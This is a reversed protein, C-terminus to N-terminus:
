RFKGWGFHFFLWFTLLGFVAMFLYHGASWNWFSQGDKFEELRWIAESLTRDPRGGILSGVEVVLFTGISLVFWGLWFKDIPRM